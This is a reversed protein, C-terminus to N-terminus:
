RPLSRIRYNLRATARRPDLQPNRYLRERLQRATAASQLFVGVANCNQPTHLSFAASCRARLAADRRFASAELDYRSAFNGVIVGGARLRSYLLSVWVRDARVARVPEGGVEGFLDDVIMDFPEGHYDRLWAVADAEVLQVDDGRVGFFREAVTLHVASLEIGTILEPQVFHRLQQIVAGGGVGLMLVRRIRGPPYFFAPLMLLDWVNGTVPRHPNYQSHFVGNTYLRLARGAARVQYRNDGDTQEWLLSM